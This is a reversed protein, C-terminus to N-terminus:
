ICPKMCTNNIRESKMEQKILFWNKQMWNSKSDSLNSSDTFSLTKEIILKQKIDKQKVRLPDNIIGPSKWFEYSKYIIYSGNLLLGLFIAGLLFLPLWYIIPYNLLMRENKKVNFTVIQIIIILIAISRHIYNRINDKPM